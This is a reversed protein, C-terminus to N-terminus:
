AAQRDRLEFAVADEIVEDTHVIFRKLMNPGFTTSIAVDAADRSRAM